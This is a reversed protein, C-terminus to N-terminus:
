ITEIVEEIPKRTKPNKHPQNLDDQERFGIAVAVLTTFKKQELIRDYHEPEIGEMPTSDIEMEACASLFIGLSLYVQNAFWGFIEKEPMPKILNKFYNQTREPLRGEIDREFFDIDNVRSFIVLADCDLVKQANHRSFDALQKKLDQDSVFTFKWPQSNISSPSLWLIKKLEEIKSPTIKKSPSYIKTSYRREMSDAFSM